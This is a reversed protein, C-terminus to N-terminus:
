QAPTRWDNEGGGVRLDGMFLPQAGVPPTAFSDPFAWNYM